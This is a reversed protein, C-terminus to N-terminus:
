LSYTLQSKSVTSLFINVMYDTPFAKGVRYNSVWLKWMRMGLGVGGGTKCYAFVSTFAQSIQDHAGSLHPLCM